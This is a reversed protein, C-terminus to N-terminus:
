WELFWKKPNSIIDDLTEWLTRHVWIDVMLIEQDLKQEWSLLVSITRHGPIKLTRRRARLVNLLTLSRRPDDHDLTLMIFTSYAPHSLGCTGYALFVTPSDQVTFTLSIHDVPSDQLKMAQNQNYKQTKQRVMNTVTIDLCSTNAPLKRIQSYRPVSLEAGETKAVLIDTLHCPIQWDEYLTVYAISIDRFFLAEKTYPDSRLTIGIPELTDEMCCDLLGIYRGNRIPMMRLTIQLRNNTTVHLGRCSKSPVIRSSNYFERPHTAFIGSRRDDQRKTAGNSM